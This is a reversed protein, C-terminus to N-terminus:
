KNDFEIIGYRECADKVIAVVLLFIFAGIAVFLFAMSLILAEVCWEEVDILFM